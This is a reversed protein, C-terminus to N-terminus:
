PVYLFDHSTDRVSNTGWATLLEWTAVFDPQQMETLMQQYITEYDDPVQTWKRFFPLMTRYVLRMDEYFLQGEPTGARHELLYSRTQVNQVGHQHLLRALEKIITNSNPTFYYGAQYFAQLAIENLRMLAPSSTSVIFDAETVRIVAGPKCVRQYENLLKPWDSTRLFSAAFRHNVLDFFEDPFELMRLADMVRFEVRDNVQEAEARERAYGLMKASVDVGILTSMTPYTKAAKILWDGTGCAVDLVRHFITPDPQEPLVGGMGATLMQDQIHLRTMEDQNSRDQVFYTSPHERPPDPQNAM